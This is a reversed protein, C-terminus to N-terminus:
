RSVRSLQEQILKVVEPEGGYLKLALNWKIEELSLQPAQERIQRAMQERTWAFTAASRAVREALSMAKVRRDYELEVESAAV